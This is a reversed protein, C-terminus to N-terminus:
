RDAKEHEELVDAGAGKRLAFLAREILQADQGTFNRVASEKVKLRCGRNIIEAMIPIDSDFNCPRDVHREYEIVLHCSIAEAWMALGPLTLRRLGCEVKATYGDSWGTLRDCDLQSLNKAKRHETLQDVISQYPYPPPPM